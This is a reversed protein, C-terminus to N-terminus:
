SWELLRFIHALTKGACTQRAGRSYNRANPIVIINFERLLGALTKTTM